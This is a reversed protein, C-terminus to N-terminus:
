KATANNEDRKTQQRPAGYRSFKLKVPNMCLKLIESETIREGPERIACRELASQYFPLLICIAIRIALISDQKDVEISELQDIVSKPVVEAVQDELLDRVKQSECSPLLIQDCPLTSILENDQQVTDIQSASLFHRVPYSLHDPPRHLYFTLSNM